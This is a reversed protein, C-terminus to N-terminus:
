NQIRLSDKKLSAYEKRDLKIQEKYEIEYKDLEAAAEYYLRRIRKSNTTLTTAEVRTDQLLGGIKELQRCAGDISHNQRIAWTEVILWLTFLRMQHWLKPRGSERPAPRRNVEAKVPGVGFSNVLESIAAQLWEEEPSLPLQQSSVRM